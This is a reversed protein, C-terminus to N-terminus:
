GGPPSSILTIGVNNRSFSATPIQIDARNAGSPSGERTPQNLTLKLTGIKTLQLQSPADCGVRCYGNSVQNLDIAAGAVYNSTSATAWRPQGTADPYYLEVVVTPTGSGNNISFIEMGWGGDSGGGWWHGAFNPTALISQPVGPEICWDASQSGIRWSMVGLATAGTRSASRCSPSHDAQNFDILISGPVSADPIIRQDAPKSKDYTARTLSNGNVDPLAVFRGDVIHGLAVYFEPTGAASYTYFVVYYLNGYQADTAILQFDIGHGNRTRDFWNSPIPAPYTPLATESGSWGLANLVPRALGLTRLPQGTDFANMLDGPQTTHSLTSGPNTTCNGVDTGTDCPAYLGPLNAPYPLAANLNVSSSAAEADLWRLGTISVMGLARDADTTDPDLFPKVVKTVPDVIGVRRDFVDDFFKGSTTQPREGIPGSGPDTNVLGIFGLGHTIEHMSVSVFDISRTPKSVGTFGYYFPENVVNNPPDIDTNFTAVIDAVDCDGGLAGCQQTGGQRVIETVAYFAYKDPLWPLRFGPSDLAYTAPGASAITAGESVSGGQSDWCAQVQIPVTIQLQETLLQGTYLLANRRQQGLTTGSNGDIPTAPTPDNWPSLSCDSGPSNFDFTLGNLTATASSTAKLSLTDSAQEFSVLSIYWRGAHLPQLGTRTVTIAENDTGSVSHYHSYDSILSLDMNPATLFPTGYRVYMDVDNTHQGTLEFKLVQADAGVDISYDVTYSNAPLTLQVPQGSTLSVAPAAAFWALGLTAALCQAIRPSM